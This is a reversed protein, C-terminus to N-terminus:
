EIAILEISFVLTANPPIPGIGQEGYAKDPPIVLIREGGVKMGVLGEEWGKIVQGGGVTFTFPAGRRRSNDFETGSQLRGAYHVVVSDGAEVADGEGVKIDEIVMRKITGTQDTASLLADARREVASGDGSEVFVLGATQESPVISAGADAIINSTTEARVLYLALAMSLVCLGGIVVEFRSFM